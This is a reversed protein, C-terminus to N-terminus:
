GNKVHPAIQSEIVDYRRKRIHNEVLEDVEEKKKDVILVMLRMHEDILENWSHNISLYLM